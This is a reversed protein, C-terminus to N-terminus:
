CGTDDSQDVDEETTAVHSIEQTVQLDRARSAM